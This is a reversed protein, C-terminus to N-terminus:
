AFVIFDLFLVQNQMFSCKKFNVYLKDARFTLFIKCLHALHEDRTKNHIFTM